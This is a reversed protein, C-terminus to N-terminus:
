ATSPIKQHRQSLRYAIAIPLFVVGILVLTDVPNDRLAHPTLVVGVSFILMAPVSGSHLRFWEYLTRLVAGLPILWLAGFMGFDLYGHMLVSYAPHIFQVDGSFQPLLRDTAQTHPPQPKGPWLHRPFGRTFLDTIVYRGYGWDMERPIVTMAAALWVAQAADESKIIPDLPATPSSVAKALGAGYDAGANPNGGAGGRGYVIAASAILALAVVLVSTRVSPRSGRSVYWFVFMGGLILLLAYRSGSSGRVITAIAFVIVALALMGGTRRQMFLAFLIVAPGVLLLSGYEFYKPSESVLETLALSRGGLAVSLSSLGGGQAIFVLFSLVGIGATVLAVLAASGRDFENPPRPCRAAWRRGWPMAYGLVFCIAGLLALVLMRSFAPQLDISSFALSYDHNAIMAAPRVVFMTGYALTFLVIPEFVDLRGQVLRFGIPLMVVVGIALVLITSLGPDQHASWLGLALAGLLAISVLAVSPATDALRARM